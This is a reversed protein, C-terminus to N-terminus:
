RGRESVLDFVVDLGEPVGNRELFSSRRFAMQFPEGLSPEGLLLREKSSGELGCALAATDSVAMRCVRWRLLFALLAM